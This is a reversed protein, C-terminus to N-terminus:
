TYIFRRKEKMARDLIMLYDKKSINIAGLTKFLPTEMQIDFLLYRNKKLLEYLELVAIKSANSKTHYMSEGFFAGKYAVGYLGGCLEDGLWAEVSHAFGLKHLSNYAKIILENIWTNERDGCARIVKDFATNFKISFLNKSHVQKLSRSINLKSTPLEVPLISRPSCEFWSITGDESGMPFIGM